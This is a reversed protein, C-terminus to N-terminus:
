QNGQAASTRDRRMQFALLEAFEAALLKIVLEGDPTQETKPNINAASEKIYLPTGKEPPPPKRGVKLAAFREEAKQKGKFLLGAMVFRENDQADALLAPDAADSNVIMYQSVAPLPAGNPARLAIEGAYIFRENPRLIM